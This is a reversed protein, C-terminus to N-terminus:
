LAPEKRGAGRCVLDDLEAVERREQEIRWESLRRERILEVARRKAQAAILEAHARGQRRALGALEIAAVQADRMVGLVGHAHTRLADTDISGVLKERLGSKQETIRGHQMRLLDEIRGRARSLEAYEMRIRDEERKRLDLLAQLKFTFKGM